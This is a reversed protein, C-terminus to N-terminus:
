ESGTPTTSMCSRTTSGVYERRVRPLDPVNGTMSNVGDMCFLRTTTSPLTRLTEELATPDNSRVRHLTAGAGRACAHVGRLDDQPGARRGARRGSRGPRSDGVHPHDHHHAAGPHRPAGLLETLQEEIDVYPRPSGLLRSWSPHTGWRRLAREVSEIIEPHLDFGLYNCSAFDSLWHNGIRIRRGQVEDIVADMM